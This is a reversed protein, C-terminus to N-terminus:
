SMGFLDLEVCLKRKNTQPRKIANSLHTELSLELLVDYTMLDM